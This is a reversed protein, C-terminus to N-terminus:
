SGVHHGCLVVSSLPLQRAGPIEGHVPGDGLVIRALAVPAEPAPFARVLLTSTLAGLLLAAVLGIVAARVAARPDSATTAQPRAAEPPVADDSPSGPTAGPIEGPMAASLGGPIDGPMAAPSPTPDDASPQRAADPGLPPLATAIVLPSGDALVLPRHRGVRPLDRRVAQADGYRDEPRAALMRRLVRALRRSAPALHHALEDHTFAGDHLDISGNLLILGVVGAAYVDHSPEPTAIELLEPALYGPTGNIMGAHTLRVDSGHVAIGFDTLRTAPRGTGTPECLINAPKVDRHVWGADHVHALADLLQDLVLITAAEGLPGDVRLLDELTPGDVLPMAIAVHADEAAWGYPTLLHPHDFSVGQERVFRMLDASDRQRLVKAACLQDTRRDWARWVSGTGGTAITDILAFRGAIVDAM